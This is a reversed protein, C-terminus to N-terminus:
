SCRAQRAPLLPGALALEPPAILVLADTGIPHSELAPNDSKQGVLGLTAQGEGPM